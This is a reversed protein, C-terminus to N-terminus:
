MDKITKDHLGFQSGRRDRESVFQQAYRTGRERWLLQHGSDSTVSFRSEDSFMVRSWNQIDWGVNEKCWREKIALHCESVGMVAAVTAVSQGAELRGVARGRDYASLHYRASM